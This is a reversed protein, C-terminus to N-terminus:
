GTISTYHISTQYLNYKIEQDKWLNTYDFILIKSGGHSDQTLWCCLGHSLRKMSLNNKLNWIDASNISAFIEGVWVDTFLMSILFLSNKRERFWLSIKGQKRALFHIKSHKNCKLQVKQLILLLKLFDPSHTNIVTQFLIRLFRVASNFIKFNKQSILLRLSGLKM